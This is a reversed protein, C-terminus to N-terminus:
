SSPRRQWGPAGPPAGPLGPVITALLRINRRALEDWLGDGVTTIPAGLWDRLTHSVILEDIMIRWFPMMAKIPEPSQLATGSARMARMARPTLARVTIWQEPFTGPICFTTPPDPVSEFILEPPRAFLPRLWLTREYPGKCSLASRQAAGRATLHLLDFDAALAAFDLGGSSADPYHRLAVEYGDASDIRLMAAKRGPVIKWFYGQAGMWGLPQEWFASTPGTPGMRLSSTWLGTQPTVCNAPEACDHQLPPVWNGVPDFEGPRDAGFQVHLQPPLDRGSRSMGRLRLEESTQPEEQATM